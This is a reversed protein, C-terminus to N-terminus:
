STHAISQLLQAGSLGDPMRSFDGTEALAAALRKRFTARSMTATGFQALHETQFQADLLRFGGVILRAVLAVLAIKSADTARSFMSEGFFAAGLSVGYLGGVLEDGDWCEISHAHNRAHLTAYLRHIDSNIWTESRGPAPEACLRMVEAFATDHTILFPERRITRALRSPVHFGDLPIVGREKPDVLFLSNSDRTEAMPFVGRRYCDLLEDPGLRLKM